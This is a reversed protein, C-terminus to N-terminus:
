NLSWFCLEADSSITKESPKTNWDEKRHDIRLMVVLTINKFPPM